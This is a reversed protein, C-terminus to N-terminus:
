YHDKVVLPDLGLYKFPPPLRIWGEGDGGWFSFLFFYVPPFDLNISHLGAGSSKFKFRIEKADRSCGTTTKRREAANGL